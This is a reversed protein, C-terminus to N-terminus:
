PRREAIFYKDEEENYGLEVYGNRYSINKAIGDSDFITIHRSANSRGDVDKGYDEAGYPFSVLWTNEGIVIFEGADFRASPTEVDGGWYGIDRLVKEGLAIAYEKTHNM